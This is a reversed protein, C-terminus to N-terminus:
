DRDGFLHAAVNTSLVDGASLEIFLRKGSASLAAV